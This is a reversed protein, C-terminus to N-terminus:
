GETRRPVTVGAVGGVAAATMAEMFPHLPQGLALLVVDGVICLGALTALFPERM